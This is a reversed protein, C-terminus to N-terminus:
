YVQFISSHQRYVETISMIDKHMAQMIIATRLKFVLTKVAENNANLKKSDDETVLYTQTMLAKEAVAKWRNCTLKLQLCSM